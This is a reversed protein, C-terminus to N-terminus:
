KTRFQGMPQQVACNVRYYYLTTASLGSLSINRVRAGGADSARTFQTAVAPDTSGYDVTCGASDPAVFVVTASTSTVSSAPVGNLTVVGQAAELADVDVGVDRLDTAAQGCSACYNRKLRFNGGATPNSPNFSFWGVDPVNGSQNGIFYNMPQGNPYTVHHPWASQIQAATVGSGVFVNGAWVYSPTFKCNAIGEGQTATVCSDTSTFYGSLSYLRQESVIFNNTVQVGEVAMDGAYLLVPTGSTAANILVTNHDFVSDEGPLGQVFWGQTPCAFGGGKVCYRGDIDWALNNRLLLRAEPTTQLASGAEQPGGILFSGPGHMLTNSEVRIDSPPNGVAKGSFEVAEDTPTTDTYWRNFVNGVLAIRIGSKWELFHRSAYRNGDSYQSTWWTYAPMRWYNRIYTYDNRGPDWHSGSDDHHWVNGSGEVFNDQFKYPGPGIGGVM